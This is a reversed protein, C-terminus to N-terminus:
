GRARADLEQWALASALAAEPDALHAVVWDPAAADGLPTPALVISGEAQFSVDWGWPPPGM